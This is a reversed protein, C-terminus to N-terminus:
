RGAAAWMKRWLADVVALMMKRGEREELVGSLQLGLSSGGDHLESELYAPDSEPWAQRDGLQCAACSRFCCFNTMSASGESVMPLTLDLIAASFPQSGDECFSM